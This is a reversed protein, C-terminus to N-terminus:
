LLWIIRMKLWRIKIERVELAAKCEAYSLFSTMMESCCLGFIVLLPEKQFGASKARTGAHVLKGEAVCEMPSM